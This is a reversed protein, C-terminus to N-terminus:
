RTPGDFLEAVVRTRMLLACFVGSPLIQASGAAACAAIVLPVHARAAVRLTQASPDDLLFLFVEDTWKPNLTNRVHKTRDRQAMQPLRPSATVGTITARRPQLPRGRGTRLM